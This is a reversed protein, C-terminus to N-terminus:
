IGRNRISEMYGSTKPAPLDDRNLPKYSRVVMGLWKDFDAQFERAMGVERLTRWAWATAGSILVDSIGTNKMIPEDGAALAPPKEVYVINYKATNTTPEPFFRIAPKSIDSVDVSTLAYRPSSTMFTANYDRDGRLMRKAKFWTSGNYTVYVELVEKLDVLDGGFTYTTQLIYITDGEWGDIDDEVTVTTSSTYATIRTSVSDTSNYVLSGVDNSSFIGTTAVLTTDVTANDVVGTQTYMTTESSEQEFDEPFKDSLTPFLVERYLHNIQASIGAESVIGGSITIEDEALQNINRAVMIKM